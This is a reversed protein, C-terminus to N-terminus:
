GYVIRREERSWRYRPREYKNRASPRRTKDPEAEDYTGPEVDYSATVRKQDDRAYKDRARQADQLAKGELIGQGAGALMQGAVPSSLFKGFGGLLGAPGTSAAGATAPGGVAAPNAIAPTVGTRGALGGVTPATRGSATVAGSAPAAMMGGLGGTVAGALGGMAAGDSFSGGMLKSGIGGIAAGYGAQTVAGTLVSGLTGTTSLGLAGLGSAVAGGFGGALPALGLAAGGTFVIAGAALVPLAVKKVINGVKSFVKKVGRALGSM